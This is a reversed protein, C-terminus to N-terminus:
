LKELLAVPRGFEIVSVYKASPHRLKAVQARKEVCRRRFTAMNDRRIGSVELRTMGKVGAERSHGPPGLWYDCREKMESRFLVVHGTLKQILLIAIACAGDETARNGTHCASASAPLERWAVSASTDPPLELTLLVGTEHQQTELCVAAAEGLSTGHAATIGPM